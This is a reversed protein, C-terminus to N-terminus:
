HTTTPELGVRTALRHGPLETPLARFTEDSRTAVVKKSMFEVIWEVPGAVPNM